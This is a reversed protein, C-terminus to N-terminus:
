VGGLPSSPGEGEDPPFIRRRVAKTVRLLCAEVGKPTLDIGPAEAINGATCGQRYYLWFITRDRDSQVVENVYKEVDRLLISDVASKEHSVAVRGLDEPDLAFEGARKQANLKRFYDNTVSVGVAWVYGFLASEHRHVFRRLVSRDARFLKVFAEQVLDDAMSRDNGRIRRLRQLVGSAIAPQLLRVLEQWDQEKGADLCAALVEAVSREQQM